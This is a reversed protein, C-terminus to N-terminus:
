ESTQKTPKRDEGDLIAFIALAGAIALVHREGETKFINKLVDDSFSAMAILFLPYIATGNAFNFGTARSLLEHPPRQRLYCLLSFLLGGVLSMTNFVAVSSAADLFSAM